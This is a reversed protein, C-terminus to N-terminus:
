FVDPRRIQQRNALYTKYVEVSITHVAQVSEATPTVKVKATGHRRKGYHAFATKTSSHGCLAAIMVPSEFTTKADAIFQHRFSYLTISSMVSKSGPLTRDRANELENKLALEITAADTVKVIVCYSLAAEIQARESDKLDDIFLERFEGNARGNSHKSNRVRLVDRGTAEHRAIESFCWENPRLGTLLTASLVDLLGQAHKHGDKARARLVDQLKVWSSAPVQKKKRGSTQSSSKSLGASSENQLAEIAATYQPFRSNMVFLVANKLLRWYSMSFSEKKVLLKGVVEEATLDAQGTEKILRARLQQYRRVYGDETAKSATPKTPSFLSAMTFRGLNIGNKSIPELLDTKSARSGM